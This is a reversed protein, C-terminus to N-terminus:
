VIDQWLPSNLTNNFMLPRKFKYNTFDYDFGWYLLIGYHLLIILCLLIM